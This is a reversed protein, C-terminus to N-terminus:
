YNIPEEVTQLQLKKATVWIKRFDFTEILYRANKSTKEIQTPSTEGDKDTYYVYDGVQFSTETAIKRFDRGRMSLTESNKIYVVSTLIANSYKLDKITVIVSTGNTYNLQVQTGISLKM